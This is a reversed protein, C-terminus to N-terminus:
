ESLLAYYEGDLSLGMLWVSRGSSSDSGALLSCIEAPLTEAELDEESLSGDGGALAYLFGIYASARSNSQTASTMCFTMRGSQIAELIDAVKTEGDTFGLEQALSKRIGFVM